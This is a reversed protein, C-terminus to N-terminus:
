KNKAGTGSAAAKAAAKKQKQSNAVKIVGPAQGGKGTEVQHQLGAKGKGGATDGEESGTDEEEEIKEFNDLGDEQEM